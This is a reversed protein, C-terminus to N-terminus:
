YAYSHADKETKMLSKDMDSAYIRRAEEQATQRTILLFFLHNLLQSLIRLVDPTSTLRSLLHENDSELGAGLNVAPKQVANWHNPFTSNFSPDYTGRLIQEPESPVFPMNSTSANPQLNRHGLIQINLVTGWTHNIREQFKEGFLKKFHTKCAETAHTTAILYYGPMKRPRSVLFRCYFNPPLSSLALKRLNYDCTNRSMRQWEREGLTWCSARYVKIDCEM